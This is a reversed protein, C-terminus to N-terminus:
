LIRLVGCGTGYIRQSKKPGHGASSACISVAGFLNAPYLKDGAIGLGAPLALCFGSFAQWIEM